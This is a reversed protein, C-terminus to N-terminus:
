NRADKASGPRRTGKPLPPPVSAQTGSSGELGIPAQTKPPNLHLVLLIELYPLLPEKRPSAICSINMSCSPSKGGGLGPVLSM